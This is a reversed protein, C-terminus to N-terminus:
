GDNINNGFQENGANAERVHFHLIRYIITYEKGSFFVNKTLVDLCIKKTNIM